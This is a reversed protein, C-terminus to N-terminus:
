TKSRQSVLHALHWVVFIQLPSHILFPRKEVVWVLAATKMVEESLPGVVTLMAIGFAGGNNSNILAGLIALPGAVLAVIITTTWTKEIPTEDRRHQLWDAYTLAGVPKAARQQPSLGPEDWVSHEVLDDVTPSKSGVIQEAKIESPDPQFGGRRLHPEHEISPDRSPDSM